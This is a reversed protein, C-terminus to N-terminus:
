GLRGTVVTWVRAAVEERSGSGDVVVWGRPGALERYAARVASHFAAEEREMRDDGPEREASSRRATALEDDVDLLVVLDPEVGDVALRNVGDVVDVGLGRAVGQYALSSPVHRDSVVWAGSALAPAVVEAVHQARDAAMLLAETAADVRTVGGLLISRIAAGTPTAGPEFTAVVEDGRERLHAVLLAAQTSKGSGDGGELVVFRGRGVASM